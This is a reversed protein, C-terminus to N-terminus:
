RVNLLIKLARTVDRCSIGVHDDGVDFLFLMLYFVAGLIAGFAYPLSAMAKFTYACALVVSAFATLHAALPLIARSRNSPLLLALVGLRRKDRDTQKSGYAGPESTIIAEV